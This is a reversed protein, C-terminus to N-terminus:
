IIINVTAQILWCDRLELRWSQFIIQGYRLWPEWLSLLMSKDIGYSVEGLSVHFSFSPGKKGNLIEREREIYIYIYM